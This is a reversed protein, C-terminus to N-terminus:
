RKIIQLTGLAIRSALAGTMLIAREEPRIVAFDGMGTFFEGTMRVGIIDPDPLKDDLSGLGTALAMGSEIVGIAMLAPSVEDGVAAIVWQVIASGLNAVQYTIETPLWRGFPEPRVAVASLNAVCGCIALAYGFVMNAPNRSHRLPFAVLSATAGALSLGNAVRSNPDSAAPQPPPPPPDTRLPLPPRRNLLLAAHARPPPSDRTPSTTGGAALKYIFNYAAGALLTVLNLLSLERGLIFKEILDTVVPIYIRAHLVAKAAALAADLGDLLAQSVDRLAALLATLAPRLAALLAQPSTVGALARPDPLAIAGPLAASLQQATTKLPGGDISSALDLAGLFDSVRDFIFDFADGLFGLGLDGRPLLPSGASPFPVAIAAIANDLTARLFPGAAAAASPLAALEADITDALHRQTQLIDGWDLLMLLFEVIQKIELAVRRVQDAVLLALDGLERIAARAVSVVGDKVTVAYAVLGNTADVLVCQAGAYTDATFRGVNVALKEAVSVLSQMGEVTARFAGELGGITANFATTFASAVADIGSVFASSLSEFADSFADGIDDFISRLVPGDQPRGHRHAYFLPAGTVLARSLTVTGTVRIHTPVPTDSSAPPAVLDVLEALRLAGTPGTIRLRTNLAARMTPALATQLARARAVDTPALPSAKGPQPHLLDNADLDAMRRQLDADTAIVAWTDPAMDAWRARLLPGSLQGPQVPLCLRLKGSPPVTLDLPVHAPLRYRTTRGPLDTTLEIAQQCVLTLRAGPPAAAGDQSRPLLVIQHVGRPQPLPTVRAPSTAGGAPVVTGAVVDITAEPDIQYDQLLRVQAAVHAGTTRPKAPIVLTEYECAIATQPPGDGIQYVIVLTKSQGPWSDGWRNDAVFSREAHGYADAEACTRFVEELLPANIENRDLSGVHVALGVPDAARGLYRWYLSTVIDAHTQPGVQQAGPCTRFEHDQQADNIVGSVLRAVHHEFEPPNPARRLHGWFLSTVFNRDTFRVAATIDQLGWSAGLVRVGATARPMAGIQGTADALVLTGGEAVILTQPPFDGHRYTVTLSKAWGPLSDGFTAVDAPIALAGGRVLAAVTDTVDLPGWAAGLIMPAAVTLTQNQKVAKVLPRGGDIQYVITLTKPRGPWQDQWLDDTAPMCLRDNAIARRAIFTREVIGYAAGLVHLGPRRRAVVRPAMDPTITLMEGERAVAVAPEHTEDGYRFVVTATKWVGPWPDYPCLRLHVEVEVTGGRVQAAIVQTIDADAFTAGLIQLPPANVYAKKDRQTVHVIPPGDGVQYVVVLSRASGPYAGAHGWTADNVDVYLRDGLARERALQTVDRYGYVASLITLQDAALRPRTPAAHVREDMRPSIDMYWGAPCVHTRVPGAGYRYVIVLAHGNGSGSAGFESTAWGGYIGNERVWSRVKGTVDEQGARAGTYAAALIQLKAQAGAYARAEDCDRFEADIAERSIAAATLRAVDRDREFPAPDRGLYRWFLGYVFDNALASAPAARRQVGEPCDRFELELRARDTAGNVLRFHHYDLGQRDPARGIYRWCLYMVWDHTSDARRSPAQRVIQNYQQIARAGGDPGVAINEALVSSLVWGAGDRRYTRRDLATVWISGDGGAGIDLAGGPPPDLRQWVDGTRWYVARDLGIVWPRDNWDVAVRHASGDVPALTTGDFRYIAQNMAVIWAINGPGVALDAAGSNVQTVCKWTEGDRRWIHREWGVVWPQNGPGVAIRHGSGDIQHWHVATSRYIGNDTGVIWTDGDPGVSIDLAAGPLTQWHVDAVRDRDTFAVPRPRQRAVTGDSRVAWVAGDPGVAVSTAVVDDAVWTAGVLRHVRGDAALTCVTGDPGVALDHAAGGPPTPVASWANGDHRWMTAQAALTWLSRDPGVTLRRARGQGSFPVFADGALEHISEDTGTLFVGGRAGAAIDVAPVSAPIHEWQGERRRWVRGDPAVLWPTNDPGVAIRKGAAPIMSWAGGSWQYILDGRPGAIWASGDPGVAIDIAAGPLAQWFCNSSM